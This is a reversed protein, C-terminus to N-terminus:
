VKRKIIIIGASLIVFSVAVTIIYLIPSQKDEGTPPIITTLAKATGTTGVAPVIEKITEEKDGNQDQPDPATRLSTAEAENIIELDNDQSSLIREALLDASDSTQKNDTGRNENSSTYLTDWGTIKVINRIVTFDGEQKSVTQDTVNITKDSSGQLYKLTSDLYDTVEDVNVTVEYCGNKDGYYYYNKGYYNVDSINEVKITYTIDVTSGYITDQNVEARVYASGGESKTDLDSVGNMNTTKPNGEFIINNQANTLKINSIVKDVKVKQKPQEIIGLNFGTYQTVGDGIQEAAGENTETNEVTISFKPTGAIVNTAGANSNAVKRVELDDVAVSYNNGELKKYWTHKTDEINTGNEIADKVVDSKVITSKYEKSSVEKIENGNVDFLKQTGDGYTFRLYYDGPVVGKLTYTGKNDTSTVAESITTKKSEKDVLYLASRKAERINNANNDLLEVTINQAVNESSDYIGDGLKEGNSTVVKDEFVTGSLVRDEGLKFILYPAEASREKKDTVHTQERTIDNAWSYDKRTYEHLGIATAKTPFNEIIGEPSELISLIADHKVSFEIFKTATNNSSIGVGYIDALYDESITAIDDKATWNSDHLEYRSTDFKNTLNTIHLKKEQYLEEISLTAINEIDIRYVVYVKLEETNNIKDYAVDSPYIARAYASIDNKSQFNVTPAATLSKNGAGGYNYTYTYGKMVIKVYAINQDITYDVDPLEKIGLNINELTQTSENFWRNYLEGSLGYQAEKASGKYTTAIGTLKSDETPMQDVIARSGRADTANFAVPIARKYQSSYDFKVYYDSLQDKLVDTFTYEGNSNTKTSAIIENRSKSMLDVKVDAIRKETSDYLSNYDDLKTRQVDVWVYGTISIYEPVEEEKNEIKINATAEKSSVNVTNIYVCDTDALYGDQDKLNYGEPAKVELIAYNGYKLNSIQLTGNTAVYANKRAEELTNYIRNGSGMYKNDGTQLIFEAGNLRENTGAKVKILNIIGYPIVGITLSDTTERTSTRAYMLRQASGEVKPNKLFWLEASITGAAKVNITVSKVSDNSANNIYFKEGSQIGNIGIENGAEDLFTLGTSIKNGNSGKVDISSITGTYKVKFPGVKNGSSIITPSGANTISAVATGEAYKTAEDLLKQADRETGESQWDIGLNSGIEQQWTNFYLWLARQRINYGEDSYGEGTAYSGGGLIYALKANAASEVSRGSSNTARNGEIKIYEFISYDGGIMTKNQQVCYLDPVGQLQHISVLKGIDGAGSLEDLTVANSIISGLMVIILIIALTFYIKKNKLM